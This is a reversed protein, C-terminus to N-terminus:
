SSLIAVNVFASEANNLSNSVDPYFFSSSQVISSTKVRISGVNYTTPSLISQYSADIRSSGVVAYNANPMATTFNVTYDAVGNYTVSSVNFSGRVTQAAGNYNVWAKCVGTMGNQTALVGTDDNLTSVTITGAM